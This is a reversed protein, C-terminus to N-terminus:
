EAWHTLRSPWQSMRASTNTASVQEPMPQREAAAGYISRPTNEVAHSAAAERSMWLVASAQSCQSEADTTGYPLAGARPTGPDVTM